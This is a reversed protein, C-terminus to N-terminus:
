KKTKKEKTEEVEVKEEKVEKEEEPVKSEILEEIKEIPFKEPWVPIGNEIVPIKLVDFGALFPLSFDEEM